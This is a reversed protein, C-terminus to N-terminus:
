GHSGNERLLLDKGIQADDGFGGSGFLHEHVADGEGRKKGLRHVIEVSEPFFTERGDGELVALDHCVGGDFREGFAVPELESRHPRALVDPAFDVTQMLVYTQSEVLGDESPVALFVDECGRDIARRHDHAPAYAHHREGVALEGPVDPSCRTAAWRGFGAHLSREVDRMAFHSLREAEDSHRFFGPFPKPRRKGPAKRDVERSM